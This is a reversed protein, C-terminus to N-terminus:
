LPGSAPCEGGIGHLFQFLFCPILPADLERKCTHILESGDVALIAAARIARELGYTEYFDLDLM